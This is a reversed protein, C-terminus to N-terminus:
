KIGLLRAATGGLMAIREDDSLGPTGLIHDVSTKTWPFPYDTGMVIQGAGTEAVLHRLAESTFVISDYYLQRLYETPKKNLTRTCREPFTVCGADSRAAYSPLYGGGHAACIKLGPFRDLTGEFILHSLAITTELPNGIVNDLVGNGKFRAGLEFPAGTGQPHIFVLVGLQEAKAWFPHFRPDALEAGDVSGGVAAGRLGYRKVADELQEAALDPHQLAVSAFAVFREPHAACIEALKENQIRILERAVERDAKYWYANISLAEVDIGQEDMARLREAPDSMLLTPPGVKLGLLAMAEPISCHAHVDVTKVHRGAVVV